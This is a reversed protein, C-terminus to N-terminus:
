QPIPLCTVNHSGAANTQEISIDSVQSIEQAYKDPPPPVRFDNGTSFESAQVFRIVSLYSNGGIVEWSDTVLQGIRWITALALKNTRCYVTGDVPLVISSSLDAYAFVDVPPTTPTKYYRAYVYVGMAAYRAEKSKCDFGDGLMADPCTIDATGGTGGTDGGSGSTGGSGGSGGSGGTDGTSGTGGTGTEGGTGGTGGTAPTGATGGTAPMGATGGTNGGTGGTAPTGATGSTGGTAPTGATGGTATMMEDPSGAGCATLILVTFSFLTGLKM